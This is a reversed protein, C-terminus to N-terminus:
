AKGEREGETKGEKELYGTTRLSSKTRNFLVITRYSERNLNIIQPISQSVAEGRAISSFSIVPRHM